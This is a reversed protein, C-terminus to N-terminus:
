IEDFEFLKQGTESYDKVPKFHDQVTESYDKVPKIHTRFLKSFAVERNKFLGVIKIMLKVMM